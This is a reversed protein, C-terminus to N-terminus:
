QAAFHLYQTPTVTRIYSANQELALYLDKLFPVGDEAFPSMCMWNEGDLLVTVVTQNHHSMPIENYISKLYSIFSDVATWTPESGYNFGWQGSVNM